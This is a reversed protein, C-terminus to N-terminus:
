LTDMELATAVAEGETFTPPHSEFRAVTLWPPTALGDRARIVAAVAALESGVPEDDLTDALAALAHSRYYPIDFTRHRLINAFCRRALSPQGARALVEGAVFWAVCVNGHGTVDSPAAAVRAAAASAGALDGEEAEVLAAVTDFVMQSGPYDDSPRGWVEARDAARAAADRDGLCLEVLALEMCFEAPRSGADAEQQECLLMERRADSWRGVNRYVHSLIGHTGFIISTPATRLSRELYAIADDNRGARLALLGLMHLADTALEDDGLDEAIALAEAAWDSRSDVQGGFAANSLCGALLRRDGLERAMALAADVEHAYGAIDGVLSLIQSLQVMLEVREATPPAPHSLVQRLFSIAEYGAETVLWFDYLDHALTAAAAVRRDDDLAWRLAARLNPYEIELQRVLDAAGARRLRPAADAALELCWTLHAQRRADVERSDALRARAFDHITELMSYRGARRDFAVLSAAELGMLAPPVSPADLGDGACVAEAADLTGGGEFVALRRLLVQEAPALLQHSWAVAAELSRHRGTATTGTAGRHARLGDAVRTLPLSRAAAAALEIGLPLRDVAACIAAVPADDDIRVGAAAARDLFLKTAADTDLPPVTWTAEGAVGLPM